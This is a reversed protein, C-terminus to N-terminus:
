EIENLLLNELKHTKIELGYSRYTRFRTRAQEQLNADNPVIELVRNFQKFFEPIQGSLNILIDRQKEPTVNFGIQIPPPPEPGEGYLHHPLFSDERYTWLLEDLKHADLENTTHIYVRHQNKYAKEILRCVLQFHNDTGDTLIYFDIKTMM